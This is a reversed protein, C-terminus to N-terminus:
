HCGNGIIIRALSRGPAWPPIAGAPPQEDIMYQLLIFAAVEVEEDTAATSLNRTM